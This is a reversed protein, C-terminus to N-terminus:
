ALKRISRALVDVFEAVAKPLPRTRRKFFWIERGLPPGPLRVLAGARWEERVVFDPLVAAALGELAYRRHTELLEAEYRVDRPHSQDPFGDPSPESPDAQFYRPAIFPLRCVQEFTRPRARGRWLGPAAYVHSTLAGLKRM